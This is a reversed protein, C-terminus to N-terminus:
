NYKKIDALERDKSDVENGEAKAKERLDKQIKWAGTARKRQTVFGILAFADIFATTPNYQQFIGLESGAYDYPFRHHWNHWGEGLGLFVTLYNETAASKPDYPRDGYMHAASNVLGTFHLVLMYRLVGAVLFVNWFAEGWCVQAILTPVVFCCFQAFWPDYKMQFRVVPDALLDSLDLQKGAEIVRHKCHSLFLFSLFSSILSSRM